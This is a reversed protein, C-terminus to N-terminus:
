EKNDKEKKEKAKDKDKEAPKDKDDKDAEDTTKGHGHKEAMERQKEANMKPGPLDKPPGKQSTGTGTDGSCGASVLGLALVLAGIWTRKIFRVMAVELSLIM